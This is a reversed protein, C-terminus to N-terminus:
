WKGMSIATVKDPRWRVIGSVGDVAVLSGDPISSTADTVGLVMPIGRERALSALHSTSGGLEAVVGAVGPLVQSLAPGAMKTVLVAGPAVRSLECECNVVCAPGSAWGAGAPQGRLKPQRLWDEEVATEEEPDLHLPRSQLLKIGSADVAWEIEVARGMLGEARLLLRSLEVVEADTLCRQPTSRRPQRISPGHHVCSAKHYQPGALAEMLVGDRNLVYRDPTVEGQAIASGLGPTANILMSGDATRSLGGGAARAAVLPQVLVAMATEAPDIDHTAMYRLARTLWLATWCARVAVLFDTENELGLYSEFQGAFSSGYRDEVLASSRVVVPANYRASLDRYAAVIPGLIEPVIPREMLGLKMDLACRRAQSPNQSSFVGRATAELGSTRLQARYAAADICFGGPTPLGAHDLAALNAAKPGFRGADAAESESLAVVIGIM